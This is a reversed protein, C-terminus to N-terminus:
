PPTSGGDTEDQLPVARVVATGTRWAVISVTSGAAIFDGESVADLRKRGFSVKGAPRLDTLARGRSGVPWGEATGSEHARFGEESSLSRKLVLRRAPGAAPLLRMALALGGGAAVISGAIISLAHQLLGVEWSVRVDLGTLSLAVALLILVAGAIGVIGFGPIVLLELAVLLLGLLALLIEEFGALRAVHHGFFFLFLAIVGLTGPLGWGPHYLEILIGLMGVSLLLSTVLPDSLARAILEAWNLDHEVVRAGALGVKELAAELTEAQHDAMKAALARESTLTLLKGQESYGKVELERDVMAAALDGSRGHREATARMESRMYSVTKEDAATVEESGGGVVPTAAGITGGPAIVITRCALSILAGASIARPNIFAVTPAQAGILSDRILVAADVRGGFTNIDLLVTASDADAQKVVREVLPALGLDITGAIPIRYVLPASPRELAQEQALAGLGGALLPLAAVCV